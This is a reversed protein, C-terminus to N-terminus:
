EGLINKVASLVEEEEFPKSIYSNIGIKRAEELLKKQNVASIIIIRADPDSKKIEEIARIGGYLINSDLVIDVLALDPKLKNYQDVTEQKDGAEGAIEYGAAELIDRLMMRMVLADDAILIRKSM